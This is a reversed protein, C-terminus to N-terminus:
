ALHQAPCQRRLLQAGVAGQQGALGGDQGLLAAQLLTDSEKLVLQVGDTAIEAM